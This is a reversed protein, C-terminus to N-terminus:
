RVTCVFFHQVYFYHDYFFSFAEDGVRWKWEYIRDLFYQEFTVQNDVM